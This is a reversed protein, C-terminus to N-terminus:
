FRVQLYTDNLNKYTAECVVPIFLSITSESIRFSYMLSRFSEGTALFRLTIRLKEKTSICNRFKTHKKQIDREISHLLMDFTKEDMRLFNKYSKTDFDSSFEEVLSLNGKINKRDLWPKVWWRRCRTKKRLLLAASGIILAIIAKKRLTLMECYLTTDIYTLISIDFNVTPIVSVFQLEYYQVPTFLCAICTRPIANRPIANCQIACIYSPNIRVNLRAVRGSLIRAAIYLRGTRAYIGRGM